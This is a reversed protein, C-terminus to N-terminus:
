GLENRRDVATTVDIAVEEYSWGGQFANGEPGFIGLAQLSLQPIGLRAASFPCEFIAAHSLGAMPGDLEGEGRSLTDAETLNPTKRILFRGHETDLPAIPIGTSKHVPKASGV